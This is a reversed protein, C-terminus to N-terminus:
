DGNIWRTYRSRSIAVTIALSVAFAAVMTFADLEVSPGFGRKHAVAQVGEIILVHALYIGYSRRGLNAMWQVWPGRWGALAALLWGMGSLTRDIRSYGSIVQNALMAITLLLGIFGLAPSFLQEDCDFALWWALALGLFASPLAKWCQLFFYPEGGQAYNLWAPRPVVALTTGIVASGIIIWWRLWERGVCARSLAATAITVILLLPLFWLHNAVGVWLDSVTASITGTHVILLHKLNRAVLYIASWALFPLYLRLIRDVVYRHVLRKPNRKFSRAQFYLAAFLYFPVGFTGVLSLRQLQPSEVTHIFIISLLAVLRAADLTDIRARDVAARAGDASRRSSSQEPLPRAHDAGIIVRRGAASDSLVGANKIDRSLRQVIPRPARGACILKKM